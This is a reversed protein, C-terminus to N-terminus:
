PHLYSDRETSGSVDTNAGFIIHRRHQQQPTTTSSLYRCRGHSPLQRHVERLTRPVVRKRRLWHLIMTAQLFPSVGDGEGSVQRPQRHHHHHQLSKSPAFCDGLRIKPNVTVVTLAQGHTARGCFPGTGCPSFLSQRHAASGNPATRRETREEENKRRPSRRQLV